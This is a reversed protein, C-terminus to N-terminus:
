HPRHLHKTRGNPAEVKPQSLWRFEDRTVLGLSIPGGCTPAGLEFQELRITTEVVFEAFHAADQLPMSDFQVRAEQQSLLQEIRAESEEDDAARRLNEHLSRDFGKYLRQFPRGVGRWSSGFDNPSRVREPDPSAPIAFEWEEGHPQGRSYGAVFIGLGPWEERPTEPLEAEHSSELFGSLEGAIEEITETDEIEGSEVADSFDQLVGQVSRPGINGTGYTLVGVNLKGIQFLKQANYWVKVVGVQGDPTEGHIQSAGDAGLVIGDRVKVSTVISM